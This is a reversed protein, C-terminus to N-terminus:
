EKSRLAGVGLVLNINNLVAVSSKVKSNIIPDIFMNGQLISTCFLNNFLFIPFNNKSIYVKLLNILMNTDNPIVM